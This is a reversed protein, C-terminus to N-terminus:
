SNDAPIILQQGVQIKDPDHLKDHNAYFIRMYENADGYFEKSIKSLTDGSKVTYTQGSQSGQGGTAVAGQAQTQNVQLDLTLDDLNPNALKVQDWVKNAAEQSPAIARIFLKDDQVHLNQVQIQQQEIVTLATQYKQKLEQFRQEANPQQQATAAEKGFMKDFLGM